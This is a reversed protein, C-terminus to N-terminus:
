PRRTPPALGLRKAVYDPDDSDPNGIVAWDLVPGRELPEGFAV